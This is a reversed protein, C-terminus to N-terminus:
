GVPDGCNANERFADWVAGGLTLYCSREAKFPREGRRQSEHRVSEAGHEPGGPAHRLHLAGVRGRGLLHAHSVADAATAGAEGAGAHRHKKSKKALTQCVELPENEATDFRIKALLCENSLEQRSRCSKCVKAGSRM